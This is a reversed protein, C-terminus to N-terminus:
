AVSLCPAILARYYGEMQEDSYPMDNNIWWKTLEFFSSAIHHAMIKIPVNKEDFNNALLYEEVRDEWFAKFRAFLFDSTEGSMLGKILRSNARVHAFVEETQLFSDNLFHNMSHLIHDVCAFLLDDKTPFHAYFTTRGVNARDIIEQVTITSYRKKQLLDIFAMFIAARTKETRRDPKM